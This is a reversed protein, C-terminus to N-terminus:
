WLQRNQGDLVGDPDGVALGNYDDEQPGDPVDDKLPVTM